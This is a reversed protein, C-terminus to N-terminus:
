GKMKDLNIKPVYLINYTRKYLNDLVFITNPVFKAGITLIQKDVFDISTNPFGLVSCFMSENIVGAILMDEIDKYYHWYDTCNLMIFEQDYSRINEIELKCFNLLISSAVVFQWSKYPTHLRKNIDEVITTIIYNQTEANGSDDIIFLEKSVNYGLQQLMENQRLKRNQVISNLHKVYRIFLEQPLAIVGPRFSSEPWGTLLKVSKDKHYKASTYFKDVSEQTINM